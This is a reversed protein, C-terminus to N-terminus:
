TVQIQLARVILTGTEFSEVPGCLVVGTGGFSLSSSELCLPSVKLLFVSSPERRGPTNLCAIPSSQASMSAFVFASILLLQQEMVVNSKWPEELPCAAHLIIWNITSTTSLILSLLHYM